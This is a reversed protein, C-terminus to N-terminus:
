AEEDVIADGFRNMVKEITIAGQNKTYGWYNETDQIARYFFKKTCVIDLASDGVAVATQTTEDNYPMGHVVILTVFSVGHIYHYDTINQNSLMTGLKHKVRHIHSQGASMQVVTKKLIKWKSCLDVSQYPSANLNRHSRTNGSTGKNNTLGDNWLDMIDTETTDRRCIMDYLTVRSNGSDQNTLMLEAQVGTLFFKGSETTMGANTALTTLITSDCYPMYTAHQEGNNSEIRDSNDILYSRPATLVKMLKKPARWVRGKGYFSSFSNGAASAGVNQVKTKSKTRTYTRSRKMGSAASSYVRRNTSSSSRSRKRRYMGYLGAVVGGLSSLRGNRSRSYKKGM